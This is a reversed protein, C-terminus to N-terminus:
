EHNAIHFEHKFNCELCFLDVSSIVERFVHILAEFILHKVTYAWEKVYYRVQLIQQIRTKNMTVMTLYM